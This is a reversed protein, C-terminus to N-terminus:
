CPTPKLRTEQRIILSKTSENRPLTPYPFRKLRGGSIGGGATLLFVLLFDSFVKAWRRVTGSAYIKLATWIWRSSFAVTGIPYVVQPCVKSASYFYKKGVSKLIKTVGSFFTFPLYRPLTEIKEIFYYGKWPKPPKRWKASLNPM